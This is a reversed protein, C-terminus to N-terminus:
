PYRPIPSTYLLYYTVLDLTQRYQSKLRHICKPKYLYTSQKKKKWCFPVPSRTYDRPRPSTNLLYPHTHTHTHPTHTHTHTLTHTHTTNRICMQPQGRSSLHISLPAGQLLFFFISFCMRYEHSLTEASVLCSKRLCKCDQMM